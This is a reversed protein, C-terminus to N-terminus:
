DSTRHDQSNTKGEVFIIKVDVNANDGGKIGIHTIDAHGDARFYFPYTMPYTTPVAGINVCQSGYKSLYGNSDCPVIAFNGSSTTTMVLSGMIQNYGYNNVKFTDLLNSTNSNYPGSKIPDWMVTEPEEQQSMWRVGAATNQLVFDTQASTPEPILPSINEQGNNLHKGSQYQVVFLDGVESTPTGGTAQVYNIQSAAINDRAQKKEANSTDATQDVNYLVKNIEM